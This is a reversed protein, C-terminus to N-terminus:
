IKRGTFKDYGVQRYKATGVDHHLIDKILPNCFVGACNEALNKVPLNHQKYLHAFWYGDWTKKMNYIDLNNYASTITNKLWKTKEHKLNFVVFGTEFHLGDKLNEFHVAFLNNEVLQIEFGPKVFNKTYTDGDLFILYDSRLSMAHQIAFVKHCWKITKDIRSKKQDIIKRSRDKFLLIEPCALTLDIDIIRSDQEVLEFDETYVILNYSAPWFKIWSEIMRHGYLEYGDRSFTTIVNTTM